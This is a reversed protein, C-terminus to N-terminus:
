ADGQLAAGVLALGRLVLPRLRRGRQLVEVKQLIVGLSQEELRLDVVLEYLRDTAVAEDEFGELDHVVPLLPCTTLRGHLISMPM